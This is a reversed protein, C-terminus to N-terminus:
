SGRGKREVHVVEAGFVECAQQVLPHNRPDDIVGAPEDCDADAGGAGGAVGRHAVAGARGPEGAGGGGSRGAGGGGAGGSTEGSAGGGSRVDFRVAVRKKVISALTDEFKSTLMEAPGLMDRDVVVRAETASLSELTASQAVVRVRPGAQELLARWVAEPEAISM